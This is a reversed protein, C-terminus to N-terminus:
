LTLTSMPYAIVAKDFFAEMEAHTINVNTAKLLPM